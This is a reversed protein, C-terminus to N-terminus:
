QEDPEQIHEATLEPIRLRHWEYVYIPVNHKGTGTQKKVYTILGDAAAKEFM